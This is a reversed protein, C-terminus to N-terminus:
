EALQEKTVTGPNMEMSIEADTRLPLIDSLKCLIKELQRATLLSPTGGGVYVTAAEYDQMQGIDASAQMERLLLNVYYEIREESAPASLFDCYLCKRVCFPIHLYVGLPKKGTSIEPKM